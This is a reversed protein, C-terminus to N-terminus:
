RSKVEVVGKRAEVLLGRSRASAEGVGVMRADMVNLGANAAGFRGAVATLGQDEAALARMEARTQRVESDSKGFVEVQREIQRVMKEAAKEARNMERTTVTDFTWVSATAGSLRM